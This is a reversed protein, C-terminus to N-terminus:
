FVFSLLYRAFLLVTIVPVLLVAAFELTDIHFSDTVTDVESPNLNFHSYKYYSEMLADKEQWIHYVWDIFKNEDDLPISSLKYARVHIDVIEPYKGQLFLRKLSYELEGYQEKKLGSYCITVDYLAEISPNLKQLVYRLGTARPLLVNEFADRNMRAAFEISKKRTRKSLNTGEPFILVSYPWQIQHLDKTITDWVKEGNEKIELPTRGALPGVGRANSDYEALHNSMSVRDDEWKRKMFIFDFNKMGYGLVPIKGLSEKLIIFLHAGMDSTYSLWWLFVWDTYIQHNAITVNHKALNSVIRGKEPDLVFTGSPISDKESTIRVKSPAAIRMISNLVIIFSKKTRDIHQQKAIRDRSYILSCWLQVIWLMTCSQIFILLCISVICGNKINDVYQRLQSM